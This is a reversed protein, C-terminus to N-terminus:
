DLTILPVISGLGAPKTYSIGTASKVLFRETLLYALYGGAEEIKNRGVGYAKQLAAVADAKPMDQRVMFARMLLAHHENPSFDRPGAKKAGNGTRPANMEAPPIEEMAEVEKIGMFKHLLTEENFELEIANLEYNRNGTNTKLIHLYNTFTNKDAEKSKKDHSLGFVTRPKQSIAGAGQTDWKDLFIKNQQRKAVIKTKAAHHIVVCTTQYTDCIFQFFSLLRRADKNSNIDGDIFTFVDSFADIVILRYKKRTLNEVIEEKLENFEDFGSAEMFDIAINKPDFGPQMATAQKRAARGWKRRSDETAIFLTNNGEEENIRLGAFHEYKFSLSVALQIMLQTKGIGDEGLFLSVAYAPLFGELLYSDPAEAEQHLESYAFTRQQRPVAQSLQQVAKDASAQLTEKVISLPPTIKNPEM